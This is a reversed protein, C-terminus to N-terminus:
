RKILYILLGLGAGFVAAMLAVASIWIAPSLDTEQPDPSLASESSPSPHPSPLNSNFSDTPDFLNIHSLQEEDVLSNYLFGNGFKELQVKKILVGSSLSSDVSDGDVTVWGLRKLTVSITGLLDLDANFDREFIFSDSHLGGPYNSVESHTAPLSVTIGMIIEMPLNGVLLGTARSGILHEDSFVKISYVEIIAESSIPVDSSRTVNYVLWIHSPSDGQIYTYVLDFNFIPELELSQVIEVQVANARDFEIFQAGTVVLASFALILTLALATKKVDAGFLL